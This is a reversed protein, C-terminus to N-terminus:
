KDAGKEVLVGNEKFYALAGEVASDSGYLDIIM